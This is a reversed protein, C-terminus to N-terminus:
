GDREYRLKGRRTTEGLGEGDGLCTIPPAKLARRVSSSLLSSSSSQGAMGGVADGVMGPWNKQSVSGGRSLGPRKEVVPVDPVDTKDAAEGVGRSGLLPLDEESVRVYEEPSRHRPSDPSASPIRRGSESSGDNEGCSGLSEESSGLQAGPGVGDQERRSVASPTRPKGGGVQGATCKILGM